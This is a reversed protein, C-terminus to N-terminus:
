IKRKKPSQRNSFFSLVEVSNGNVRYYLTNKQAVVVRRIELSVDSSQYLFPNRSLMDITKEIETALKKLEKETWNKELYTITAELETLAHETWLINYGSTM